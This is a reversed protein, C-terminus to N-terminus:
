YLGDFPADDQLLHEGPVNELEFAETEQVLHEFPLYEPSKPKEEQKCHSGPLADPVTSPAEIQKLQEGPEKEEIPDLEQM